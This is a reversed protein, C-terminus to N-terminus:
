KKPKGAQAALRAHNNVTFAFEEESLKCAKRFRPDFVELGLKRTREFTRFNRVQETTYTM